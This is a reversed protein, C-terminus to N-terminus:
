VSLHGDQPFRKLFSMSNTKKNKFETFVFDSLFNGDVTRM